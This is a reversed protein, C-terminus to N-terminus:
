FSMQWQICEDTHSELAPTSIEITQGAHQKDTVKWTFQDDLKYFYKSNVCSKGSKKLLDSYIETPQIDYLQISNNM